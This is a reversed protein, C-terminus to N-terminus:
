ETQPPPTPAERPTSIVQFNTAMMLRLSEVFVTQDEQLLLRMDYQALHFDLAKLAERVEPCIGLEDLSPDSLVASTLDMACFDCVTLMEELLLNGFEGEVVSLPVAVGLPADGIAQRIIQLYSLISDLGESAFPLGVLLVERGGAQLYEHILAADEASAAYRLNSDTYQFAQPYYIGSVYTGFANLAGVSESLLAANLCTKGQYDAVPSTYNIEGTPTNISLSLHVKSAAEVVDDGAAFPYANVKPVPAVYREETSAQTEGATLKQYTEDDLWLKLLNGVLIAVLVASGLCILVIGWPPLKKGRQRHRHLHGRARAM